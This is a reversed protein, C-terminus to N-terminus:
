IGVSDERREQHLKMSEKVSVEELVEEELKTGLNVPKVEKLNQLVKSVISDLFERSNLNEM